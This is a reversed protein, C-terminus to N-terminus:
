LSRWLERVADPVGGVVGVVPVWGVLLVCLQPLPPQRVCCADLVVGVVPVCGLVAERLQLPKRVCGALPVAVAGAAGRGVNVRVALVEALVEM